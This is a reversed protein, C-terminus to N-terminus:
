VIMHGKMAANGRDQMINCSVIDFSGLYIDIDVFSLM